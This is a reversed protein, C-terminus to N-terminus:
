QGIARVIEKAREETDEQKVLQTFIQELDPLTMLERLRAVSDHAVVRSKHLIVVRDCVREVVELVHSSYFIIKGEAALAKLLGKLIQSATVDLGSFPEDLVLIEPDHLLAASLLIKQRMGKSYSAMAMHRSPTLDFVELLTDIKKVLNLAPLQRLRGILQLYERGSLHTYLFPEEPVYGLRRKYGNIDRRINEGDFLIRGSTPEILGTLIKVTTSKGSGNPGLYGLIEGRGIEFSVGQIAPIGAYSKSLAEVTLLVFVERREYSVRESLREAFIFVHQRKCRFASSGNPSAEFRPRESLVM